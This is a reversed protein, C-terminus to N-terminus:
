LEMYKATECEVIKRYSSHAQFCSQKQLDKNKNTQSETHETCISEVFCTLDSKQYVTSDGFLAKM